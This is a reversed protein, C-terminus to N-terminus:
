AGHEIMGGDPTVEFFTGNDRQFFGPEMSAQDPVVAEPASFDEIGVKERFEEQRVSEEEPTEVLNPIERGGATSAQGFSNVVEALETARGKVQESWPTPVITGDKQETALMEAAAENYLRGDMAERFEKFKALTPKGMNFAMNILVEQIGKPQSDFSEFLDRATVKAETITTKLLATVQAPTLPLKGSKLAKAHSKPIGLAEEMISLAGRRGMNFGVGITPLGMTDKYMWLREGEHRRLTDMLLADEEFGSIQNLIARIEDDTADDPFQLIKGEFKIRAM